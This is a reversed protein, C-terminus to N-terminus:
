YGKNIQNNQILKHITFLLLCVLVWISLREATSQIGIIVLLQCVFYLALIVRFYMIDPLKRRNMLTTIGVITFIIYFFLNNKIVSELFFISFLFAEAISFNKCLKKVKISILKLNSKSVLNIFLYYVVIPSTLFFITQSIGTNIGNNVIKAAVRDLNRILYIKSFYYRIMVEDSTPNFSCTSNTACVLEITVVYTTNKSNEQIPFGFPFDARNVIDHANYNNSHILKENEYLSLVLTEAKPDIYDGLNEFSIIGLYNEEAQFSFYSLVSSKKSYSITETYFFMRPTFNTSWLYICYFIASTILIALPYFFLKRNKSTNLM